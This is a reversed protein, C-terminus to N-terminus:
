LTLIRVDYGQAKLDDFVRQQEPEDKCKVIVEFTSDLIAGQSDESAQLIKDYRELTGDSINLLAKLDAAGDADRIRKFSEADLLKDHTGKLKNLVQRILERDVDTIKRRLVPGFFLGHSTCVDVRQEGDALCGESNTIIPVLWGFKELSHWTAEKQKDTMKNPNHGDSKLLRLDELMGEFEPPVEISSEIESGDRLKYKFTM